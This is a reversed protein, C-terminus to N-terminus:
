VLMPMVVVFCDDRLKVSMVASDKPGRQHLYYHAKPSAYYERLAARARVLLDADYQGAPNAETFLARDPNVRQYDPFKGAIPAFVQNGLIWRKDDLRELTAGQVPKKIDKIAAKLVDTPIIIEFDPQYGEDADGPAEPMDVVFHSMCAGDTSVQTLRKTTNDWKFMAGNLYYRVDKVAACPLAAKLTHTLILM